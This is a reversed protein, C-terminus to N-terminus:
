GVLGKRLIRRALVALSTAALIGFAILAHEALPLVSHKPIPLSMFHRCIVLINEPLSLALFASNDTIEHLIHALPPSMVFAAILGLNTWTPSKSLSTVAQVVLALTLAVCFLALSMGGPVMSVESFHNDPATVVDFGWVFLLPALTASLLFGIFALSRGLLYGVPTLPRAFYAELANTRIDSAILDQGFLVSLPLLVPYIFANMLGAYFRADITWPIDDGANGAFQGFQRLLERWGPVVKYLTYLGFIIALSLFMSGMTIRRVWTISWGRTITAKFVPWWAPAGSRQGQFREYESAHFAM